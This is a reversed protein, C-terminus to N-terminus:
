NEPINDYAGKELGKKSEKNRKLIQDNTKNTKSLVRVPIFHDIRVRFKGDCGDKGEKVVFSQIKTKSEYPKYHILDRVEAFILDLRVFGKRSLFLPSAKFTKDKRM